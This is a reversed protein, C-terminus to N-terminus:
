NAIKKLYLDYQENTLVHQLKQNIYTQLKGKKAKKEAPDKISNIGDMKKEVAVFIDYIRTKQTANLKTSRELMNIVKEANKKVSSATNKVSLKQQEVKTQAFSM